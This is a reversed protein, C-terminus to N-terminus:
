RGGERRHRVTLAGAGETGPKPHFRLGVRTNPGAAVAETGSGFAPARLAELPDAAASRALEVVAGARGNRTSIRSRAM